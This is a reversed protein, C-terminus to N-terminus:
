PSLGHQLREHEQNELSSRKKLRVVRWLTRLIRLLLRKDLLSRGENNRLGLSMYALVSIGPPNM